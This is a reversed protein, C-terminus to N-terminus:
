AGAHLRQVDEDTLRNLRAVRAKSRIMAPAALMAQDRNDAEIIAWGTHDGEQCGRDFKHLYSTALFQGLLDLWEEGTHPTEILNRDTV